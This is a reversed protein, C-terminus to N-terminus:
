KRKRSKDGADGEPPESALAGLVRQRVQEPPLHGTDAVVCSVYALDALARMARARVKEDESSLLESAASVYSSALSDFLYVRNEITDDKAM